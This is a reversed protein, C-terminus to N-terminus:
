TNTGELAMHNISGGHEARFHGFTSGYRNVTCSVKLLLKNLNTIVESLSHFAKARATLSGNVSYDTLSVFTAKIQIVSLHNALAEAWCLNLSEARPTLIPVGHVVQLIRVCSLRQTVTTELLENVMLMVGFQKSLRYATVVSAARSLDIVM